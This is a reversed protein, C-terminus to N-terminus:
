QWEEMKELVELMSQNFSRSGRFSGLVPLKDKVIARWNALDRESEILFDTVEEDDILGVLKGRDLMAMEIEKLSINRQTRIREVVVSRVRELAALQSYRYGREARVLLGRLRISESWAAKRGPRLSPLREPSATKRSSIYAIGFGISSILLLVLIWWLKGSFQAYFLIIALFGLFMLTMIYFATINMRSVVYRGKQDKGPVLGRTAQRLGKARIDEIRGSSM